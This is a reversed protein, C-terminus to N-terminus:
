FDRPKSGPTEDGDATDQGETDFSVKAKGKSASFFLAKGAQYIPSSRHLLKTSLPVNVGGLPTFVVNQFQKKAGSKQQDLFSGMTWRTSFLAAGQNTEPNKCWKVTDNMAKVPKIKSKACAIVGMGTIDEGAADLVHFYVYRTDLLFHEGIMLPSEKTSIDSGGNRSIAEEVEASGPLHRSVIGGGKERDRWLVYMRDIFCPQIVLSKFFQGTISNQFLGAKAGEVNNEVQPSNSQLLNYWPILVDEPGQGVGLGADEDVVALAGAPATTALATESTTQTVLAESTEPAEVAKKKSGM